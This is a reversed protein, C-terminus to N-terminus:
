GCTARVRKHRTSLADTSKASMCTLKCIVHLDIDLARSTRWFMSSTDSSRATSRTRDFWILAAAFALADVAPNITLTRRLVAFLLLAAIVHVALNWARFVAPSLGAIAHSISLSLAVM